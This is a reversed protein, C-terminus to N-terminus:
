DFLWQQLPLDSGIGRLLTMANHCHCDILGPMLLRGSMDRVDDYADQPREKGIYCITDGDVGLCGEEIYYFSDNKWALIGANVFLRKM